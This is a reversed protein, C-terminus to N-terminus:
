EQQENDGVYQDDGPIAKADSLVVREFPRRNVHLQLIDPRSYHAGVDIVAKHQYVTELSVSVTLITEENAPAAAIVKGGPAIICSGGEGNGYGRERVLERHSEPVDDPKLLSGIAIVFCNGQAAFARSMLLGNVPSSDSIHRAFPWAAVHIQTGQAMLAYAPLLMTHEGCSLGSIRGYDREYATLGVGDGDGWLMRESLTPKLKRHRGLIKGERGIFLLTCYVTGRTKTDLEVLGIAVDIDAEHAAKCLRDTTPSPIEVGNAIYAAVAQNWLQSNIPYPHFFPYGPLWTESFAAFDAGKQAAEEILQCAKETSAERDLYVPSAQVAALTFEPYYTMVDEGM